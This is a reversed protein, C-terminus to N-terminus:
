KGVGKRKLAMHFSAMSARFSHTSETFIIKTAAKMQKIPRGGTLRRWEERRVDALAPRDIHTGAHGRIQNNQALRHTIPVYGGTGSQTRCRNRPLGTVAKGVYNRKANEAKRKAKHCEESLCAKRNPHLSSIDCGCVDCTRKSVQVIRRTYRRKIQAITM